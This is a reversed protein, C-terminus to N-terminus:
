VEENEQINFDYDRGFNFGNEAVLDRAKSHTIKEIGKIGEVYEVSTLRLRSLDKNDIIFRGDESMYRKGILNCRKAIDATALYYAIDIM